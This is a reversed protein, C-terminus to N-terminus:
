DPAARRAFVLFGFGPAILSRRPGALHRSLRHTPKKKGKVERNPKEQRAAKPIATKLPTSRVGGVCMGSKGREEGNVQAKANSFVLVWNELM